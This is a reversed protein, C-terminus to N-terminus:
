TKTGHENSLLSVAQQNLKARLDDTLVKQLLRETTEMVLTSVEAKTENLLNRHEVEMANRAQSVIQEVKEDAVKKQVQWYQERESTAKALLAQAEEQAQKLIQLREKEAAALQQKMSEAYQLGDAIKKQREEVTKLTPKIAFRYLLYAVLCFNLIQAILLESQVGFTGMLRTVATEGM